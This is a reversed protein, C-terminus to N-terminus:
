IDDMFKDRKYNVFTETAKKIWMGRGGEALFWFAIKTM